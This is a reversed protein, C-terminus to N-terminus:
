QPQKPESPHGPGFLGSGVRIMTSGEEIAVTFDQTMGMSLEELDTGPINQKRLDDRLIRLRKFYPRVQEPNDAFPAMAMLGILHINAM